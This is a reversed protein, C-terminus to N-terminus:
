DIQRVSTVFAECEVLPVDTACSVSFQVWKSLPGRGTSGFAMIETPLEIVATDRLFIRITRKLRDKRAVNSAVLIANNKQGQAYAMVPANIFRVIIVGIWTSGLFALLVLLAYSDLHEPLTMTRGRWWFYTWVLVPGWLGSWANAVTFSGSFAEKLCNRYFCLARGM